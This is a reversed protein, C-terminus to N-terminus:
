KIKPSVSYYRRFILYIVFAGLFGTVMDGFINVFTEATFWGDPLFSLFSKLYYYHEEVGRLFAEFLEWALLLGLITLFYKQWNIKKLFYILLGLGLGSAIHLLSMIDLFTKNRIFLEM